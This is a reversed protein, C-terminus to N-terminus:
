LKYYKKIIQAVKKASLETNDIILNEKYPVEDNFSFTKKKIHKKMDIASTIKGFQKRSKGTTRKLIEAEDSKLHVFYIKGKVKKVADVIEKLLQVKYKGSYASTMILGKVKNKASIKIFEIRFYALTKSFIETGYDFVSHILDVFLHNHLIKYGTIKELEKAVTLKGVAPQGYIFILKM